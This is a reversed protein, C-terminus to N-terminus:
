YDSRPGDLSELSDDVHDHPVYAPTGDPQEEVDLEGQCYRCLVREPEHNM